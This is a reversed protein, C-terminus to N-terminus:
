IIKYNSLRLQFMFSWTGMVSIVGADGQYTGLYEGVYEMEYVMPVIHITLALKVMMQKTSISVIHHSATM